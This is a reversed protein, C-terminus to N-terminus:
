NVHPIEGDEQADAGYGVVLKLGLPARLYVDRVDQWENRSRQRWGM